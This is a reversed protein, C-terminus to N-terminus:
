KNDRTNKNVSYGVDSKGVVSQDFYEDQRHVKATVKLDLEESEFAFDTAILQYRMGVPRVVELLDIDILDPNDCYIKILGSKTDTEIIIDNLSYGRIALPNTNISLVTALKMGLQSGRNRILYPFYKIIKHNNDISKDDRYRYGVMTALLPLLHDPCEDADYLDPFHDINYKFTTILISLQRLLVRYDRSDVYSDPVYDRTLDFIM